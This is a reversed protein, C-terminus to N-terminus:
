HSFVVSLSHLKENHLKRWNETAEDKRAEPRTLLTVLSHVHFSVACVNTSFALWIMEILFITKRLVHLISLFFPCRVNCILSCVMVAICLTRSLRNTARLEIGSM